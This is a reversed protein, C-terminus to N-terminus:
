DQTDNDEWHIVDHEAVAISEPDEWSFVTLGLKRAQVPITEIAGNGVHCAALLNAPNGLDGGASRKQREHCAQARHLPQPVLVIGVTALVPCVECWPHVALYARRIEGYREQERQKRRGVRKLVSKRTFGKKAKFGKGSRLPSRKM